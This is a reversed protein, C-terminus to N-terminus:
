RVIKKSSNESVAENTSGFTEEQSPCNHRNGINNFQAKQLEMQHQSICSSSVHSAESKESLSSSQDDTAVDYSINLSGLKKKLLFNLRKEAKNKSKIELKLQKELEIVKKIMQESENYGSKSSAREAQLRGRLCEVTRLGENEEMM